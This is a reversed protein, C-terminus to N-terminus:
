DEGARGDVTSNGVEYGIHVWRGDLIVSVRRKFLLDILFTRVASLAVGPRYWRHKVGKKEEFLVGFDRSKCV